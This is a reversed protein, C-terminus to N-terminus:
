STWQDDGYIPEGNFLRQERNRRVVLGPLKVNDDYVWRRFQNSAGLYDKHNLMRLLTSKKFQHEGLNFVFSVLADFQGQTLEVRVHHNVAREAEAVDEALLEEAKEKTIRDGIEVGKTHGWGITPVKGTDPYAELRLGESLKILDFASRSARM